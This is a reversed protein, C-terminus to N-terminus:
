PYLLRVLVEESAKEQLGATERMEAAELSEGWSGGWLRNIWDLCDLVDLFGM